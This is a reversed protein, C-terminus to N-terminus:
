PTYVEAEQAAVDAAFVTAAVGTRSVGGAALVRGDALVTVGFAWRGTRLPGAASWVRTAPDFRLASPFGVDLAAPDAGGLVLVEGSPLPLARPYARTWPLPAEDRWAETVPDYREVRTPGYPDFRADDAGSRAGGLALVTGDPLPVAQHGFRADRLAGTATWLDTEPDYTECHALATPDVLGTAAMGGVALLRGDPLPAVIHHWRADALEGAPSWTGTDPDFLEATTLTLATRTDRPRNGGTVLVRGDPLLTAAHGYRAGSMPPAPTWTGADPDYIETSALTHPPFAQTGTIGGAALVRGDRLVTLSHMRRPEGLAGTQSWTGQAPDLLASAALALLLRGAGGAALVRGDVLTVPGEYQGHWYVLPFPLTGAPSWHGAATGVPPIRDGGDTVLLRM